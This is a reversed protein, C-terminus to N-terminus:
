RSSVSRPTKIGWGVKRESFSELCTRGHATRFRFSGGDRNRNITAALVSMAGPRVLRPRRAEMAALVSMAGPRVLRPRRAEM